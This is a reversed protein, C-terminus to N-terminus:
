QEDMQLPRCKLEYYERYDAVLGSYSLLSLSGEFGSVRQEELFIKMSADDKRAIGTTQWANKLELQFEGLPNWFVLKKPHKINLFVEQTGVPTGDPRTSVEANCVLRLDTWGWTQIAWFVLIISTIFFLATRKVPVIELV